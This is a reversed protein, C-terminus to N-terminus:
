KRAPPANGEDVTSADASLGPFQQGLDIKSNRWGAENAVQGLTLTLQNFDGFREMGVGLHHDEVLRRGRERAALDLAEKGDDAPEFATADADDVDAMGQLIHHM